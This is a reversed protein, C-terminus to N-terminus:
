AVVFSTNFMNNKESTSVRTACLYTHKKVKEEDYGEADIIFFNINDKKSLCMYMYTKDCELVANYGFWLEWMEKAMEKYEPLENWNTFDFIDDDEDERRTYVVDDTSLKYKIDGFKVIM